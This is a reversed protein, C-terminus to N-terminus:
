IPERAILDQRGLSRLRTLICGRDATRGLREAARLRVRLSEALYLQHVQSRPSDFAEATRWAGDADGTALQLHALLLRESALSEFEDWTVFGPDAAPRLATLLRIATATDARVLTLRAAVRDAALRHVPRASSDAIFRLRTALSDLRAEDRTHWSWLAVYKARPVSMRSVPLTLLSRAASDATGASAAGGADTDFIHLSAAASIGERIASDLLARAASDRGQMITLYNLGKLASWRFITHLESTDRDFALVSEVARRACGPHAAGAGLIRSVEVVRDSARRVAGPWDISEPGDFRCRVLLDAQFVWDSDPAAAEIQQM